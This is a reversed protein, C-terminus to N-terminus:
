KGATVLRAGLKDLVPIVPTFCMRARPGSILTVIGVARVAGDSGPATYVPGGSDGERATITTCRVVLGQLAFLSELPRAAAGRIQGCQDPGSTRGTFCVRRGSLTRATGVVPLPPRRIGRDVVPTATRGTGGPVPLLLADLPLRRTLIQLVRGLVIGPQPPRRLAANRRQVTEDATLGGCHAASLGGLAGTKQRVLFASTCFASDRPIPKGGVIASRAFVLERGAAWGDLSPAQGDRTVRLAARGRVAIIDHRDASEAGSPLARMPTWGRATLVAAEAAPDAAAVATAVDLVDSCSARAVGVFSAGPVAPDCRTYSITGAHAAAPALSCAALVAVTARVRRPCSTM